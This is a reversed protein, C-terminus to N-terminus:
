QFPEVEPDQGGAQDEEQDAEAVAEQFHPGPPFSGLGPMVGLKPVFPGSPGGSFGALATGLGGATQQVPPLTPPAAKAIPPPAKAAEAVRPKPAAATQNLFLVLRM